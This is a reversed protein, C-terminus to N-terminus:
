RTSDIILSISGREGQVYQDIAREFTALYNKVCCTKKLIRM